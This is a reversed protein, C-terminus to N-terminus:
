SQSKELSNELVRPHEKDKLILINKYLKHWVLGFM